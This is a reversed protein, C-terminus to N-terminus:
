SITNTILSPAPVLFRSLRASCVVFYVSKVPEYQLSREDSTHLLRNRICRHLQKAPGQISVAVSALGIVQDLQGRVELAPPLPPCRPRLTDSDCLCKLSIVFVVVDMLACCISWTRCVGTKPVLVAHYERLPCEFSCVCVRRHEERKSEHIMDYTSQKDSRGGSSIWGWFDKKIKKIIERFVCSRSAVILM